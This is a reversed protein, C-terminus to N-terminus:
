GVKVPIDMFTKKELQRRVTKKIKKRARKSRPAKM